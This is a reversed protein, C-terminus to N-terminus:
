PQVEEKYEDWTARNDRTGCVPCKVFYAGHQRVFETDERKYILTSQCELCTIKFVKENGNKLVKIM